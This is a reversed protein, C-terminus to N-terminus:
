QSEEGDLEQKISTNETNIRNLECKMEIVSNEILALKSMGM